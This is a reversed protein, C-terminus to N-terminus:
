CSIKSLIVSNCRSASARKHLLVAPKKITPKHMMLRPTTTSINQTHITPKTDSTKAPKDAAQIM